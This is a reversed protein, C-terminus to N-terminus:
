VGSTTAIARFNNTLVNQAKVLNEHAFQRRSRHAITWSRNQACEGSMLDTQYKREDAVNRKDTIPWHNLHELWEVQIM